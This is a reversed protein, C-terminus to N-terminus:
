MKWSGWSLSRDVLAAIHTTFPSSKNKNPIEAETSCRRRVTCSTLLTHLLFSSALPSSPPRIHLRASRQVDSERRAIHQTRM